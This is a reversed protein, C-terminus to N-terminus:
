EEKPKEVPEVAVGRQLEQRCEELRKSFVEKASEEDKKIEKKPKKLAELENLADAVVQLGKNVSNRETQTLPCENCAHQINGFAQNLNM